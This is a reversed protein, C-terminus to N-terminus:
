KKSRSVGVLGILGSIFLWVAAPVPVASVNINDFAFNVNMTGSVDAIYVYDVGSFASDFFFTEFDNGSGFIGDTTLTQSIIESGPLQALFTISVPSPGLEALDISVLNMLSNDAFGFNLSSFEDYQMFATGNSPNGLGADVHNFAGTFIVGSETYSEVRQIGDILTPTNFNVISSHAVPAFLLCAVAILMSKKM